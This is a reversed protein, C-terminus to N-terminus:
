RHTWKPFHPHSLSQVYKYRQGLFKMLQLLIIWSIGMVFERWKFYPTWTSGFLDSLQENIPDHRPFSINPLKLVANSKPDPRTNYGFLFKVQLVGFGHFRCRALVLGFNVGGTWMSSSLEHEAETEHQAIGYLHSSAKGSVAVSMSLAQDCLYVYKSAHGQKQNM